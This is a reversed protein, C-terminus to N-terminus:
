GGARHRPDGGVVVIELRLGTPHAVQKCVRVLEGKTTMALLGFASTAIELEDYQFVRRTECSDM